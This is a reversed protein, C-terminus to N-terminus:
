KEIQVEVTALRHVVHFDNQHYIMLPLFSFPLINLTAYVYVICMGACVAPVSFRLCRIHFCIILNFAYRFTRKIQDFRGVNM